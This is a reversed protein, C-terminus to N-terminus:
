SMRHWGGPFDMRELRAEAQTVTLGRAHWTVDWEGSGDDTAEIEAVGWVPRGDHGSGPWMTDWCGNEYCEECLIAIDMVGSDEIPAGAPTTM